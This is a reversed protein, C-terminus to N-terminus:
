GSALLYSFFSALLQKPFLAGLINHSLEILFFFHAALLFLQQSLLYSRLRFIFFLASKSRLSVVLVSALLSRTM